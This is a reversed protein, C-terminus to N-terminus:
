LTHIWARGTGSFEIPEECTWYRSDSVETFCSMVVASYFDDLDNAQPHCFEISLENGEPYYTTYADEPSTPDGDLTVPSVLCRIDEPKSTGSDVNVDFWATLCDRSVSASEPTMLIGDATEVDTGGASNACEQPTQRTQGCGSLVAGIAGVQALTSLKRGFSKM